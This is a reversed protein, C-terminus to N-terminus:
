HDPDWINEEDGIMKSVWRSWVFLADSLRNLYRINEPNVNEKKLLSVVRREARRCVNRAIHLQANIVSGGPLVFSTLESLSENSTDIESELKLIADDTLRPLNKSHSGTASALQTGLNFLENQVSKLTQVLFSFKENGREKLLERCLGIEANLEDVTGFAEVRVNDKWTEAGGILRTKGADGTRTYVKNIRINPLKSQKDTM